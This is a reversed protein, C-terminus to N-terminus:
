AKMDKQLWDICASFVTEKEEGEVIVHPSNKLMVKESHVNLGKEILEAARPDVWGDKETLMMFVPCSIRGLGREAKKILKLLSAITGSYYWSWYERGLVIRDASEEPQPEWSRKMKKLFLRIVPIMYFIRSKILMAPALLIIRDPDLEEAILLSLVGGMSLGAVSVEDFRSKLDLYENRVHAYWARHDTKLFDQGNTGHGPLRPVSVTYGAANIKEALEYMEGPYGNYGHLVLVAKGNEGALFLPRASALVRTMDKM